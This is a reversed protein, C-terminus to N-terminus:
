RSRGVASLVALGIVAAHGLGNLWIGLGVQFDVVLWEEAVRYIVSFLYTPVFLGVCGVLILSGWSVWRPFRGIWVSMLAVAGVFAIMLVRPLWQDSGEFRIADVSPLALLAVFLGLGRLIWPRWGTQGVSLLALAAGLTIPPIYFMDRNPLEGSQMQPMFKVWESLDLGIQTLGNTSHSLWPSFYGVLILTLALPWWLADARDKIQAVM